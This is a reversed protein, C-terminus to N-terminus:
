TSAVENDNNCRAEKLHEIEKRLNDENREAQELQFLLLENHWLIRKIEADM